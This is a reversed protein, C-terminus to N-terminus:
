FFAEVYIQFRKAAGPPHWIIFRMKNTHPAGSTAQNAMFSVARGDANYNGGAFMELNTKNIYDVSGGAVAPYDPVGIAAIWYQDTTGGKITPDVDVGGAIIEYNSVPEWDVVTKVALAGLQTMTGTVDYMTYTADGYDADNPDHNVISGSTATKFYVSRKKFNTTRNTVSLKVIDRGDKAKPLTPANGKNNTVYTARFDSLDADNQSQQYDSTYPVSGSFISCVYTFVGDSAWVTYHDDDFEYQVIGTLGKSAILNKFDTWRRDVVNANRFDVAM